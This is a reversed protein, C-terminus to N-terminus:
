EEEKITKIRLTVCEGDNLEERPKTLNVDVKSSKTHLNLDGDVTGAIPLKELVALGKIMCAPIHMGMEVMNELISRFENIMSAGLVFYGFLPSIGSVDAGILKGMTNAIPALGFALLIMIWYLFKKLIGIFGAESSRKKLMTSKMVGTVYDFFNLCLFAAFLYWHDGLFYTVVLIVGGGFANFKDLIPLNITPNM